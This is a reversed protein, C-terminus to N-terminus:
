KPVSPQDKPPVTPASKKFGTAEAAGSAADGVVDVAGGVVSGTVEATGVGIDKLKEAFYEVWKEMKFMVSISAQTYIRDAQYARIEFRLDARPHLYTTIGAGLGYVFYQRVQGPIIQNSVGSLIRTMPSWPSPFRMWQWRLSALGLHHTHGDRGNINGIIDVYQQCRQSDSFVCRGVHYGLNAGLSYYNMDGWAGGLELGYDYKQPVYPEREVYRVAARARDAEEQKEKALGVMNERAKRVSPNGIIPAAQACPVTLLVLAISHFFARFIMVRFTDSSTGHSVLSSRLFAADSLHKSALIFFGPLQRGPTSGVATM